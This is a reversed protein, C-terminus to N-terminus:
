KKLDLFKMIEDKPKSELLRKVFALQALEEKTFRNVTLEKDAAICLEKFDWLKKMNSNEGIKFYILSAIDRADTEVNSEQNVKHSNILSSASLLKDIIYEQYRLDNKRQVLKAKYIKDLFDLKVSGEELVTIPPFNGSKRYNDIVAKPAYTEIEDLTIEIDGNNKFGSSQIPKIYTQNRALRRFSDKSEPVNEGISAHLPCRWKSGLNKLSARPVEPICDLHWPTQCYDCRMILKTEEQYNDWTGMKTTGCKYCILFEGTESDIHNEPNYSDMKTISQGYGTGFIQRETLTDKGKSDQYQDRNGTKVNEFSDRIGIPLKFQTSNSSKIQFLLKSFLKHKPNVNQIFEKEARKSITNTPYNAKFTCQPCSWDGEPLNDPDLTPNLCLFHFSRPCTDCCLFSGTQFCSSCFDDNEIEPENVNSSSPALTQNEYNLNSITSKGYLKSKTEKLVSDKVKTMIHPHTTPHTHNINHITPKTYYKYFANKRDENHIDVANVKNRIGSHGTLKTAANTLLQKRYISDEIDFGTIEQPIVIKKYSWLSEKKIKEPPFQSLPLGTAGNKTINVILEDNINVLNGDLDREMINISLLENDEDIPQHAKNSDKSKGYRDDSPIIRRKKLNYDVNQSSARKPRKDLPDSPNLYTSSSPSASGSNIIKNKNEISTLNTKSSASSSSIISTADSDMMGNDDNMQCNSKSLKSM